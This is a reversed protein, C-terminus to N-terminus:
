TGLGPNAGPSLAIRMRGGGESREGYLRGNEIWYEVEVGSYLVRLHNEKTMRGKRRFATAPKGWPEYPAHLEMIEVTGDEEINLVHLDHCWKGEWAAKGWVGLFRNWEPPVEAKPEQVEAVTFLEVTYCDKVMTLDYPTPGKPEIKEACSSALAVILLSALGAKVTGIRM